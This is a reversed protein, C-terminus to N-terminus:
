GTVAMTPSHYRQRFRVFLERYYHFTVFLFLGAFVVLVIWSGAGNNPTGPLESYSPQNPDVRVSIVQGQSYYAASPDNVTSFSQGGVPDKLLVDIDATYWTGYRGQHQINDVSIVTAQTLVGHAQVFQSLRWGNFSVVSGITFGATFIFLFVAAVTTAVPGQRHHYM